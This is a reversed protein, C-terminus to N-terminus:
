SATASEVLQDDVQQLGRENYEQGELGFKWSNWYAMSVAQFRQRSVSSVSAGVTAAEPLSELTERLCSRVDEESILSAFIVTPDAHRSVHLVDDYLDVDDGFAEKSQSLTTRPFRM